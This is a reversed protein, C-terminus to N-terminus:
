NGDKKDMVDKFFHVMPEMTKERDRYRTSLPQIIVETNERPFPSPISVVYDDGQGGLLDQYYGAPILTASFFVRARFGKGMKLIQESPDLCFLKMKVESKQVEVYTVFPENYLEAIKVFTKAAFYTDLLLEHDNKILEAEAEVIFAEILEVLETDLEKRLYDEAKKVQLLHDNIAKASDAVSSNKFERKLQLFNSKNIEASYMERARDVLNHAEDVLIATKKKQEEMLRKLSVRPDFVYNYDCIIADVAYALEISFEFPCVRHKRAYEEIVTRNIMKEQELIDIIAGNIRDYFGDAFPCDISTCITEE